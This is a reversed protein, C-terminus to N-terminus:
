FPSALDTVEPVTLARDFMMVHALWGLFSAAGLSSSAGVAPYAGALTLDGVWTGIGVDTDVVAGDYIYQVLDGTVSWTMGVLVWDTDSLGNRDSSEAVAPNGAAYRFSFRNNANSKYLRIYEDEGGGPTYIQAVYHVTANTWVALNAMKMWVLWSGETKGFATRIAASYLDVYDGAGDFYPSLSGDPGVANALTVGTYTGNQLPNVLCRAVSGSSEDLPWYAILGSTKLVRESYSEQGGLLARRTGTLLGM